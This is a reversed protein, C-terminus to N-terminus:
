ARNNHQDGPARHRPYALRPALRAMAQLLRCNGRWVAGSIWTLVVTSQKPTRVREHHESHGLRENHRHHESSDQTDLGCLFSHAARGARGSTEVVFPVLASAPLGLHTMAQTYSQAKAQEMLTAAALTTTDSNHLLASRSSPSVVAVDLYTTTAGTTVRIDARQHTGQRNDASPRLLVPELEVVSSPSARRISTALLSRLEDHRKTRLESFVPCTLAHIALGVTDQTEHGCLCQFGVPASSAPVLLRLQLGLRFQEDPLPAHKTTAEEHLWKVAGPCACSRVWARVAASPAADLLKALTVEDHRALLQRQRPPSGDEGAGTATGEAPRTADSIIQRMRTLVAGLEAAEHDGDMLRKVTDEVAALSSAWCQERVWGFRRIGLGGLREPLHRVMQGMEDLQVRNTQLIRLLARDVACDFSSFADGGLSPLTTRAWYLPRGAVCSQVLALAHRPKLECIRDLVAAKGDLLQQLTDEVYRDPGIPLSLAKMGNGARWEALGVRTSKHVNVELGAGRALEQLRLFAERTEDEPGVLYVDDLYAVVRVGYTEQVLKLIPHLGLSFFLPGLPDGQRVGEMAEVAKERGVFLPTPGRYAWRFFRVLEPVVQEVQELVAERKISNFANSFDVSQITVDRESGVELAAMQLFHGIAEVGGRVGIGLQTPALHARAQDRARSALIRGLLRVWAEGVAIPRVGGGPKSLLVLRSALWVEEHPLEGAAVRNLLECAPGVVEGALVQRILDYTWGSCAAASLRPLDDVAGLLEAESILPPAAEDRTRIPLGPGVPHLAYVLVRTEATLPVVGGEADGELRTLAKSPLGAEVLEEIKRRPLGGTRQGEPWQPQLRRAEALVADVVNDRAALQLLLRKRQRTMRQGRVGWVLVPLAHFAVTAAMVDADRDAGLISRIVETLLSQFPAVLARSLRHVAPCFSDTLQPQVHEAERPALQPRGSGAVRNPHVDNATLDEDSDETEQSPPEEARALVADPSHPARMRRTAAAVRETTATAGTRAPHGAGCRAKLQHVKLGPVTFFVGRCGPCRVVHTQGTEAYVEEIGPPSRHVNRLHGCLNAGTSFPEDARSCGPVLCLFARGMPPPM